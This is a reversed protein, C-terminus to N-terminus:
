RPPVAAFMLSEAIQLANSAAIRLNDSVIWLFCHGPHAPDVIIRVIHVADSGVVTVPSPSLGDEGHVILGGRADSLCAGIQDATVPSALKLFVSCAHSHFIPAQIAAIGIPPLSQGLLEGLQRSVLQEFQRSTEIEALLNFALQGHFVRSEISQFNLLEVTQEQLENVGASGRESAPCMATISVSELRFESQMRALVRGLAIAAPHPNVYYGPGKLLSPESVGKLFLTGKRGTQTLDITLEPFASGSLAYAEIIEPSCAFFAIDTDAFVEPSLIQTIQIEGAFEQLLGAYEETELLSLNGVPFASNEIIERLEKGPPSSSGVIAVNPAQRLREPNVIVLNWHLTSKKRHQV